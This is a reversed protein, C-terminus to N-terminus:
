AGDPYGGRHLVMPYHPLQERKPVRARWGEPSPELGAFLEARAAETFFAELAKRLRDVSAAGFRSRWRHEIEFLEGLYNEKATKGRSSLVVTKGREGRPRPKLRVHGSKELFKIASALAEKSVGSLKPLERVAAGQEEIVRLVNACIALSLESESEFEIAFTFLVKSLLAPLTRAYPDDGAGVERAGSAAEKTSFGYGLIPLTNPPEIECRTVIATLSERLNQVRDEGFRERWREEIEPTLTGWVNLAALGGPTPRVMRGGNGGEEAVADLKIYGWWSWLRRLWQRLENRSVGAKWYLERVPIGDEPVFRLFRAWMVM